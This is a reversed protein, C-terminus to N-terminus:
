AYSHGFRNYSMEYFFELSFRFFIKCIRKCDSKLYPIIHNYLKKPQLTCDSHDANNFYGLKM